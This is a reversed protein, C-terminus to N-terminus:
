VEKRRDILRKGKGEFAPLSGPQLFEVEPTVLIEEKLKKQIIEKLTSLSSYRDDIKEVEVRVIMKDGEEERELVIQYNKGVEPFSMLVREIQSPLINVGKFIILDDTRGHIRSVRVHTRGCPCPETGLFTVLDGTRFRILPMAERRLTTLVLEGDEGEKVPEETQPDIVEVFYHDEWIHIGKRAPCEFGVGPGGMESLGYSNFVRFGFIKELKRDTSESHPEAGVLAIRLNLSSPPIGLENELYHALYLAYSPTIHIVTTGFDQMLKVQRRTNGAGSPIIFCGIKEAGYHLGLGGTFLGYSMMNQFVDEKRVGVMYLCRAVMDSWEEIDQATYFVVTPNGSTGSSSHLRVVEEKPVALFKFPYGDRVDQKATFPLDKLFALVNKQSPIKKIRQSYFSSRSAIELTKVLQSKQYELLEERELTEKEKSWYQNM